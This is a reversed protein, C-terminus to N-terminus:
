SFPTALSGSGVYTVRVLWTGAVYDWVEIEDFGLGGTTTRNLTTTKSTATTKFVQADASATSDLAIAKGNIVDSGATVLSISGQTQALNNILMYKQGSGSSAPLTGAFGSSSNTNIIVQKEAHLASTLSLTTATTFVFRGSAPVIPNGNVSLATNVTVTDYVATMNQHSSDTGTNAM